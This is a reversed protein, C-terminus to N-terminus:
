SRNTRLSPLSEGDVSACAKAIKCSINVSYGHALESSRVASLGKPTTKSTGHGGSTIRTTPSLIIEALHIALDLLCPRDNLMTQVSIDVSTLGPHHNVELAKEPLM